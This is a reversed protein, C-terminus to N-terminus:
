GRLTIGMMTFHQDFAFAESIKYQQCVVFSTCDAFSLTATNYQRFLREAEQFSTSNIAAITLAGIEETAEKTRKIFNLFQVAGSHSWDYRLRTVTEDIVYDTTLLQANQQVLDNYIAVADDHHPDKQNLLAIWAGSDVFIM